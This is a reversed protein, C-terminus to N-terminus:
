ETRNGPNIHEAKTLEANVRYAQGFGKVFTGSEPELEFLLFDPLSTLLDIIEGHRQRFHSLINTHM